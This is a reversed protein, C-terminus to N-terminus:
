IIIIVNNQIECCIQREDLKDGLLLEVLSTFFLRYRVTQAVFVILQVQQFSSQYFLGWFLSFDNRVLLSRRIQLQKVIFLKRTNHTSIELHLDANLKKIFM